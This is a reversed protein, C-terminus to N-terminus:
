LRGGYDLAKEIARRTEPGPDLWERLSPVDFWEDDAVQIGVCAQGDDLELIGVIIQPYKEGIQRALSEARTAKMAPKASTATSPPLPPPSADVIPADVIITAAATAPEAPAAGPQGVVVPEVSPPSVSGGYGAAYVEEDEYIPEYAILATTPPQWGSRMYDDFQDFLHREVDRLTVASKTKRWGRPDGPERQWWSPSGPCSMHLAVLQVHEWARVPDKGALRDMIRQATELVDSAPSDSVSTLIRSILHM